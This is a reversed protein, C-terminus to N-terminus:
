KKNIIPEATKPDVTAVVEHYSTQLRVILESSKQPVERWRDEIWKRVSTMAPHTVAIGSSFEHYRNDCLKKWDSVFNAYKGGKAGIDAAIRLSEDRNKKYLTVFQEAHRNGDLDHRRLLVEVDKEYEAASVRVSVNYKKLVHSLIRYEHSMGIVANKIREQDLGANRLAAFICDWVFETNATSIAYFSPTIAFREINLGIAVYRFGEPLPSNECLFVIMINGSNNQRRLKTKLAFVLVPPITSEWQLFKVGNLMSLDYPIRSAVLSGRLPKSINDLVAKITAIDHSEILRIGLETQKKIVEQVLENLTLSKMDLQDIVSYLLFKKRNEELRRNDYESHNSHEPKWKHVRFTGQHVVLTSKCHDSGKTRASVKRRFACCYYLRGKHVKQLQYASGDTMIVLRPAAILSDKASAYSKELPSEKSNTLTRLKPSEDHVIERMLRRGLSITDLSGCQNKLQDCGLAFIMECIKSDVISDSRLPRMTLELINALTNHDCPVTLQEKRKMQDALISMEQLLYNPYERITDDELSLVATMGGVLMRPPADRTVSEASAMLNRGVTGGRSTVGVAEYDELERSTSTALSGGAVDCNTNAPRIVKVDALDTIYVLMVIHCQNVKELLERVERVDIKEVLSDNACLWGDTDQIYAVFHRIESQLHSVTVIAYM